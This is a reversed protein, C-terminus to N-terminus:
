EPVPVQASFFPRPQFGLVPALLATPFSTVQQNYAQVAQNYRMREVAIRNETGTLEYQLNIFGQASQLQTNHATYAALQDIAQDLQKWSALKDSPTDAKLYAQRFQILQATLGSDPQANTQAVQILNPILDARRQLQNEVQAWATDVGQAAGSLRNYTWISWTVVVAGVGIAIVKLKQQRERAKLKQSRIEQAAQRIFQPPIQAEAGAQILEELSYEQSQQAYLRSALAFVEPAMEEPVPPDSHPM